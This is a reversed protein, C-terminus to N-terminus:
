AVTMSAATLRQLDDAGLYRRMGWRVYGDGDALREVYPRVADALWADAAQGRTFEPYICLRPRLEFGEARTVEELRVLSPWPAEPNVYDLTLPSVGGWDNIGARLFFPYSGPSLNPPVQLNASPGLVLRAVAVTRLMEELTPAPSEAMPTDPKPLFNQVIVEQIHGYQRHLDRISLLDRARDGRTEGIGVLIGTTFPIRLRGARSLVRLRAAPRKSPALYHPGGAEFLRPSSSELMLGMSPSVERLRSLESASLIGANIHPLLGSKELVWRAAHYLYDVTHSFGHRRLWQRAEPYRQEPREGLVFLAETCGLRAGALAVQLVEDPGMYPEPAGPTGPEARFTCYGCRDRCLRTLPIFVKPSFSVTRGHGLERLHSAAEFLAPLERSPLELLRTVEDASLEQGRVAKDLLRATAIM